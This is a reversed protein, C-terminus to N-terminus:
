RQSTNKPLPYNKPNYKSSQELDYEIAAEIAADREKLREEESMVPFPPHANEHDGAVFVIVNGNDDIQETIIEGM